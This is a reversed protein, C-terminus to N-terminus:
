ALVSTLEKVSVDVERLMAQVENVTGEDLLPAGCQYYM